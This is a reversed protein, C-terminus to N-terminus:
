WVLNTQFMNAEKYHMCALFEQQFHIKLLTFSFHKARFKTNGGVHLLIRIKSSKLFDNM